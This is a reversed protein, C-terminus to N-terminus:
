CIFIAQLLSFYSSNQALSGMFRHYTVTCSIGLMSHWDEVMPVVGELRVQPTNANIMHTKSSRARAATLQDGGVLIKYFQDEQSPKFTCETPESCNAHPPVYQHLYSMIAVM